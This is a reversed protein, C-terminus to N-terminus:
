GGLYVTDWEAPKLLHYDFGAQKCRSITEQDGFGSYAVLMAPRLGRSVLAEAVQFGDTEPMALDLIALDPHFTEAISVCESNTCARADCGLKELLKALIACGDSDDDVVITRVRDTASKVM